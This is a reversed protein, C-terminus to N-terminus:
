PRRAVIKQRCRPRQGRGLERNMGSVAFATMLKVEHTFVDLGGEGFQLALAGLHCLIDGILAPSEERGDAQWIARFKRDIFGPV